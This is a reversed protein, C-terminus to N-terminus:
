LSVELEIVQIIIEKNSKSGILVGLGLFGLPAFDELFKSMQTSSYEFLLQGGKVKITERLYKGYSRSMKIGLKEIFIDYIFGFRRSHIKEDFLKYEYFIIHKYNDLYKSFEDDVGKFFAYHAGTSQIDYIINFLAYIISIINVIKAGLSEEAHTVVARRLRETESKIDPALAIKLRIGYDHFLKKVDSDRVEISDGGAPKLSIKYVNELYFTPTSNFSQLIFSHKNYLPLIARAKNLLNALAKLPAMPDRANYSKEQPEVGVMSVADRLQSELANFLQQILLQLQQLSPVQSGKIKVQIDKGASEPPDGEMIRSSFKELGEPEVGIGLYIWYFLGLARERYGKKEVDFGGLIMRRHTDEKERMLDGLTSGSLQSKIRSVLNNFGSVHGLLDGLSKFYEKWGDEDRLLRRLEDVGRESM